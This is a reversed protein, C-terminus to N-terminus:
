HSAPQRETAPSSPIATAGDAAHSPDDCRGLASAIVPDPRPAGLWASLAARAGPCDGKDRRSRAVLIAADKGHFSGPFRRIHADALRAARESDGARAVSSAEIFSADDLLPSSPHLAVFAHLLEAARDFRGLRYSDIAREYEAMEQEASAKPADTSSAPEPRAGSRPVPLARPTTVPPAPTPAPAPAADSQTAERAPPYWTEGASLVSEGHIRVSVVGEDVHVRTTRGDHVSLEFTTGRVEVEGDPVNVIFRDEAAQKRVRLEVDGDAVTVREVHGERTQTWRAAPAPSVVGEFAKDAKTAGHRLHLTAAAASAIAAVALVGWAPARARPRPSSMADRLLRARLRRTELEGQQPPPLQRTLVRLEELSAMEQRCTTCSRVHREFAAVDAPSLRGEDIARVEWSRSCSM